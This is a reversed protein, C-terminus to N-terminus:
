RHGSERRDGSLPGLLQPHVGQFGPQLVERGQVTFALAETAFCFCKQGRPACMGWVCAPVSDMFVNGCRCKHVYVGSYTCAQPGANM